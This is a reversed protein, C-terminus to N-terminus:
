NTEEPEPAEAELTIEDILELLEKAEQAREVLAEKEVRVEGGEARAEIDEISWRLFASLRSADEADLQSQEGGGLKVIEESAWEAHDELRGIITLMDGVLPLVTVYLEKMVEVSALQHEGSEVRTCITRLKKVQTAVDSTLAEVSLQEETTM